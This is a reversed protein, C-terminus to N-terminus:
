PANKMYEAPTLTKSFPRNRARCCFDCERM